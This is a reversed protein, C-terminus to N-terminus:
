TSKPRVHPGFRTGPAPLRHRPPSLNKVSLKGAIISKIQKAYKRSPGLLFEANGTPHYVDLRDHVPMAYPASYGVVGKIVANGGTGKAFVVHYASNFLRGTDIPVEEQSKKRLFRAAAEIADAANKRMQGVVDKVNRNLEQTGRVEMALRFRPKAM